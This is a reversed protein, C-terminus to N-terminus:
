TDAIVPATFSYFKRIEPSSRHGLLLDAKNADAQHTVAHRLVEDLLAM